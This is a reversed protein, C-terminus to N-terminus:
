TCIGTVKFLACMEDFWADREVITEWFVRIDNGNMLQIIGGFVGNTNPEIEKAWYVIQDIRVCCKGVQIFENQM